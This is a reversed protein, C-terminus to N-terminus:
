RVTFVDGSTSAGFQSLYCRVVQFEVDNTWSGTTIDRVTASEGCSVVAFGEEGDSVIVFTGGYLTSYIANEHESDIRFSTPISALQQYRAIRQNAKKIDFNAQSASGDDGDLAFLSAIIAEGNVRDGESKATALERYLETKMTLTAPISAVIVAPEPTATQETSSIVPTDAITSEAPAPAEANIAPEIATTPATEITYQQDSAPVDPIDLGITSNISETVENVTGAGEDWVVDWSTMNRQAVVFYRPLINILLLSVLIFVLIYGSLSWLGSVPNKPKMRLTIYLALVLFIITAFFTM